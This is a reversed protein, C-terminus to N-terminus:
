AEGRAKELIFEIDACIGSPIDGIYKDVLMELMEYMDPAASILHANALIEPEDKCTWNCACSAIPHLECDYESFVEDGDVSWDGKTFKSM